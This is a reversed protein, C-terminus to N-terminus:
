SADDLEDIKKELRNRAIGFENKRSRDAIDLMKPKVGVRKVRIASKHVIRNYESRRLVLIEGSKFDEGLVMVVFSHSIEDYMTEIRKKDTKSLNISWATCDSEDDEAKPVPSKTYKMYIGFERGTNTMINFRAYDDKSEILSPRADKNVQLLSYIAAGLLFDRQNLSAM